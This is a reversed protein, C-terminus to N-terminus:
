AVPCAKVNSMEREIGILKKRLKRDEEVNEVFRKYLKSKAEKPPTQGKNTTYENYVNHKDMVPTIQDININNIESM